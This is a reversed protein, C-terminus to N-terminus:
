LISKIFETVRDINKGDRYTFFLDSFSKIDYRDQSKLAKILEDTDYCIAGPMTKRYDVFVGVDKFYDELDPVYFYMPKDLLSYDFIISSFDSILCDSVTFLDHTDEHNMNIIRSHDPLSTDLLLPHFKYLLITNEDFSEILRLADLSVSRFGEYLNGRFTPAYLIINKDKLYPYKDFMKRRATKLYELDSLHDVRPMGLVKVNEKDVSFAKSYPEKWYESNSIVYDYNRIPYERKIVNGFKKIAGAAHWLEIVKVGPKKFKAIVYNNDTILVVASTNIVFLQHITNIMYLFNTILSKKNYHILVTKLDYEKNKLQDYILKLDSELHDSELSIFAIRNKKIKLPKVFLNMFSLIINLIIKKLGM